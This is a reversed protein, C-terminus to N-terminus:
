YSVGSKLMITLTNDQPPLDTWLDTCFGPLWPLNYQRAVTETLDQELHDFYEDGAMQAMYAAAMRQSAILAPYPKLSDKWPYGGMTMITFLTESSLGTIRRAYATFTPDIKNNLTFDAQTIYKTSISIAADQTYDIVRYSCPSLVISGTGIDYMFKGQELTDSIDSSHFHGTFMIRLGANMLTDRERRWNDVLFGPFLSDQDKFHLQIEHHMMGFVTKGKRAAEALRARIWTMTNPRIAGATYSKDVSYDYKCDDIVILWLNPLPESVYSLSYPDTSLADSYGCDAYISRFEAPSTNPVRTQTASDYLYANTNYIDHNGDIVRVKIGAQILQSLYLHVSLHSVLEGDKTLDGPILVLDPKPNMSLVEGIFERMIADSAVLLKGNTLLYKQFAPGDKVLLSPDMYHNDSMVVIKYARSVATYETNNKKCATVSFILLIAPLVFLKRM